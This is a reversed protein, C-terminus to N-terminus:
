SGPNWVMRSGQILTQNELCSVATEKRDVIAKIALHTIDVEVVEEEEAGEVETITDEEGPTCATTMAEVEVGEIIIVAM